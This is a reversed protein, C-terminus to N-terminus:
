KNNERKGSVIKDYIKFIESHSLTGVIEGKSNKVCLESVGLRVFIKSAAHLDLSDLLLPAKVTCDSVQLHRVMGPAAMYTNRLISMDLLGLYNENEYVPYISSSDIFPLVGLLPDEARLVHFKRNTIVEKVQVIRLVDQDLDGRHAPSVFKNLVQSKYISWPRSFAIHMVASMLLGPLLSYSGTMECVMVVGAIPAKAAGAFFSGMGVLIMAEPVRLLGPFVM